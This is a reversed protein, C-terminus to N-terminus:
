NGSKGSFMKQRGLAVKQGATMTAFEVASPAEGSPIDAPQQTGWANQPVGAARLEQERQLAGEAAELRQNLPALRSDLLAGISELTLSNEPAAPAAPAVPAAPAEPATAEAVPATESAEAEVPEAPSAVVPAAPAEEVVPAVPAATAAEATPSPPTAPISMDPAASDFLLPRLPEPVRDRHLSALLPRPMSGACAALEVRGVVTEVLGLAKAEAGTLWTEADMKSIIDSLIAGRDGGTNDEIRAAYLNAIDRDWKRLQDAIASIARHDGWGGWSANHIMLYANEPMRIEDAALMLITASSAALGDINAVVRAPHRALIANMALAAFVEGGSSYINMEIESVNGLAKVQEEFESVTGAAEGGYYEEWAKELGIAGRIDIVGKGGAEARVTFWPSAASSIPVVNAPM